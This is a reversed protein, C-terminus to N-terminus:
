VIIKYKHHQHLHLQPDFSLNVIPTQISVYFIILKHIGEKGLDEVSKGHLIYHLNALMFYNLVDKINHRAENMM